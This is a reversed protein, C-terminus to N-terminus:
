YLYGSPGIKNYLRNMVDDPSEDATTLYSLEKTLREVASDAQTPELQKKQQSEAENDFIGFNFNTPQENNKRAASLSFAPKPAQKPKVTRRKQFGESCYPYPTNAESFSLRRNVPKDFSLKEETIEKLYLRAQRLYLAEDRLNSNPLDNIHNIIDKEEGNIIAMFRSKIPDDHETYNGEGAIRPNRNKINELLTKLNECVDNRLKKIEALTSQRFNEEPFDLLRKGALCANFLCDGDANIGLRVIKEDNWALVCYHGAGYHEGMLLIGITQQSNEDGFVAPHTDTNNKYVAIKVQLLNAIEILEIDGGWLPNEGACVRMAEIYRESITSLFEEVTKQTLEDIQEFNENSKKFAEFAIKYDDLSYEKQMDADQQM